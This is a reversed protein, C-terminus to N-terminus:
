NVYQALNHDSIYSGHSEKGVLAIANLYRNIGKFMSNPKFALLGKIAFLARFYFPIFGRWFKDVCPGTLGRVSNKDSRRDFSQHDSELQGSKPCNNTCVPSLASVALIRGKKRM